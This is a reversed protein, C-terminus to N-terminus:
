RRAHSVGPGPKVSPLPPPARRARELLRLVEEDPVQTFDDYWLGIAHLDTPTLLCVVRDVLQGLESLTDPAAVPVALVLQKPGEARIAEIVARMTGGTAIGDDVLLVTRGRLSPRPRDGRFLRVREEVERRKTETMQALELGTLGIQEILPRSIYLQGGEAIAGVGLEQHWPVGIKRVVWIDLPAGLARAIEFGVPVGGRPLAIVIPSDKAYGRLESALRLGADERDRFRLRSM